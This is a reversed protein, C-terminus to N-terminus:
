PGTDASPAPSRSQSPKPNLPVARVATSLDRWILSSLLGLLSVLAASSFVWHLAAALADRTASAIPASLLANVDLPASSGSESAFRLVLLTGFLASGLTSGM